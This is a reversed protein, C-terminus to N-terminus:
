RREFAVRACLGPNNDDLTLQAGHRSAIASALSLGLGSGPTRRSEDLRYFPKLADTRRKEPIGTGNDAVIAVVGDGEVETRLFIDVGANNHRLANEILNSFLQRLLQGDAYVFAHDTVAAYINQDNDEAVPKYTEALTELMESVDVQQFEINVHGAELESIKLLSAFSELSNDLMKIADRGSAHLDEVSRLNDMSELRRRLAGLPTRLDHAIGASVYRIDNVLSEIRDLMQNIILAVPRFDEGLREAPMRTSLAGAGVEEAILRFREIRMLFRRSVILGVVISCIMLAILGTLMIRRFAHALENISWSDAAVAFRYGNELSTTLLILNQGEPDALRSWGDSDPMAFRDFLAIGESNEVTYYLRSRTGREMREGIDHILEDIGEDRYDGLLQTAESSVHDRLQQEMSERVGYYLFGSLVVAAVAFIAALMAAYRFRATNFLSATIM